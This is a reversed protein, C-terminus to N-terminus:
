IMEEKFSGDWEKIEKEFQEKSKTNFKIDVYNGGVIHQIHFRHKGNYAHFLREAKKDIMFHLYEIYEKKNM